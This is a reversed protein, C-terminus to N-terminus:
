YFRARMATGPALVFRQSQYRERRIIIKIVHGQAEDDLHDVFIQRAISRPETMM